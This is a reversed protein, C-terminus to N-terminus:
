MNTHLIHNDCPMNDKIVLYLKNHCFTIFHLVKLYSSISIYRIIHLFLLFVSIFRTLQMDCVLSLAEQESSPMKKLALQAADKLQLYVSVEAGNGLLPTEHCYCSFYPLVGPSSKCPGLSSTFWILYEQRDIRAAKCKQFILAKAVERSNAEKNSRQGLM